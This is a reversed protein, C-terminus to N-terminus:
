YACEAPNSRRAAGRSRVQEEADAPVVGACGGTGAQPGLCSGPRSGLTVM